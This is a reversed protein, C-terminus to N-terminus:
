LTRSRCAHLAASRDVAQSHMTGTIRFASALERLETGVTTVVLSVVAADGAPIALELVRAFDNIEKM